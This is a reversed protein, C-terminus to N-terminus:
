KPILLFKSHKFHKWDRFNGTLFHGYIACANKLLFRLFRAAIIILISLIISIDILVMIINTKDIINNNPRHFCPYHKGCQQYNLQKGDRGERSRLPGYSEWCWSRWAWGELGVGHPIELPPQLLQRRPKICHWWFECLITRSVYIHCQPYEANSHDLCFNPFSIIKHPVAAYVRYDFSFDM